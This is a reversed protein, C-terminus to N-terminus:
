VGAGEELVAAAEAATTRVAGARGRWCMGSM